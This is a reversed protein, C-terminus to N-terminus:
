AEEKKSAEAAEEKSVGTPHNFAQLMGQFVLKDAEHGESVCGNEVMTRVHVMAAVAQRARKDKLVSRNAIVNYFEPHDEQFREIEPDELLKKRVRFDDMSPDLEEVRGEIRELVAMLEKSKWATHNRFTEELVTSNPGPSSTGSMKKTRMQLFDANMSGVAVVSCCSCTIRHPTIVRIHVQMCGMDSREEIVPPSHMYMSRVAPGCDRVESSGSCGVVQGVDPHAAEARIANVVLGASWEGGEM